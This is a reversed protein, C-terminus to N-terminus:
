GQKRKWFYEGVQIGRQNIQKCRKFSQESKGEVLKRVRNVKKNLIAVQTSEVTVMGNNQGTKGLTNIVKFGIIYKM